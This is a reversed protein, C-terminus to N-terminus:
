AAWTMTSTADIGLDTTIQIPPVPPPPPSPSPTPSPAPTGIPGGSVPSPSPTPSPPPPQYALSPLFWLQFPRDAVGPALFAIGSGDPAWTPQAVLQTTVVPVRPGLSSGNWSAIALVSVQKRYSCIMAVRTGDPSFSPEACDEDPTTLASGVYARPCPINSCPHNTFWLQSIISGDSYRDYRTYIIGGSPAPVPQMDGGTYGASDTWLRGFQQISGGIPVSWVSMDVEYGYKPADYSMYLTQQDASLRPYFSWHNDGTDYSRPGAANNTFQAVFRGFRSLAYVDSYFSSRKVALIYQGAPYLAPQTWGDEPTLQHFRGASLSYIAGSQAFYLTGPLTFARPAPTAATPKQAAVGVKSQRSGLYLYTTVGTVAVLAALFAALLVRPIM